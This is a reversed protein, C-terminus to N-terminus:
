DHGATDATGPRKTRDLERALWAKAFRLDRDVTAESVDLVTAIERYELGGFYHLEVAKAKREDVKALAVLADDLELLHQPREGAAVLDSLTVRVADGGRKKAARSRAHDVLVRRMMTAAMAFFHSRDQWALDADVLRGYAEHVLDTPALSHDARESRMRNAAIRRLEEYVMPMLEDLAREDGGRWSALLETVSENPAQPTM